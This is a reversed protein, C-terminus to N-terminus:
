KYFSCEFNFSAIRQTKKKKKTAGLLMNYRLKKKTTEGLLM